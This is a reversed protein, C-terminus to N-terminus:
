FQFYLFPSDAKIYLISLVLLLITAVEWRITPFKAKEILQIPNPIITLLGVAVCLAVLRKLGTRGITQFDVMSNLVNIADNFCEARFFVWCIM